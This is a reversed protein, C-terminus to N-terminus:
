VRHGRQLVGIMEPLLDGQITNMPLPIFDVDLGNDFLVRREVFEGVATHELFTLYHTGLKELWDSRSLYLIPSTTFLLLDLDSLSDAPHDRRARSGIVVALRIDDQTMVWEHIREMLVDYTLRDNM